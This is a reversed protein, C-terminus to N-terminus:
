GFAALWRIFATRLAVAAVAEAVVGAFSPPVAGILRGTLMPAVAVREGPSPPVPVSVIPASLVRVSVSPAASSHSGPRVGAVDSRTVADLTEKPAVARSFIRGPM